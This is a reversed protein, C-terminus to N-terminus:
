KIIGIRYKKISSEDKIIRGRHHKRQSRGRDNGISISEDSNAGKLIQISPGALATPLIRIM